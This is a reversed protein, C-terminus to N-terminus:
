LQPEPIAAFLMAQFPFNCWTDISFSIKSSDFYPDIPEFLLIIFIVQKCAFPFLSVLILFFVYEDGFMM